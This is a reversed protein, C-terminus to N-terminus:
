ILLFEAINLLLLDLYHLNRTSQPQWRTQGRRAVWRLQLVERSKSIVPQRILTVSSLCHFCTSASERRHQVNVFMSRPYRPYRSYRPWPELPLSTYSILNIYSNLIGFSKLLIHLEYRNTLHIGFNNKHHKIKHYKHKSQSDSPESSCHQYHQAVPRMITTSWTVAAVVCHKQTLTVM